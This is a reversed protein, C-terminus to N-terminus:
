RFASFPITSTFSGAPRVGRSLTFSWTIALSWIATRISVLRVCSTKQRYMPTGNASPLFETTSSPSSWHPLARTQISRITLRTPAGRCIVTCGPAAASFASARVGMSTRTSTFSACPSGTASPVRTVRSASAPSNMPVSADARCSPKWVAVRSPTAVTWRVGADAAPLRVTVARAPSAEPSALKERSGSIRSQITAPTPSPVIPWRPYTDPDSRSSM